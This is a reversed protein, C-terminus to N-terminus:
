ALKYIEVDENGYVRTFGPQDHFTNWPFLQPLPPIQLTVQHTIIVYEAGVEQAYRISQNEESYYQYFTSRGIILSTYTLRWDTLSLYTSNSPTNDKLWYIAAYVDRQAQATTARGTISDTAVTQGWSGYIMPSTLLIVLVAVRLKGGSPWSGLRRALVTLGYGAMLTLPVLAEISFRWASVALPAAVVLLLLWLLPLLQFTKKSRLCAWASVMAFFLLVVLGLDDEVESAMYSMVPLASLANALYTTKSVSGGGSIALQLLSAFFRPRAVIATVLPLVSVIAPWFYRLMESRGRVFQVLPLLLLAPVLSVTSYHALYATALAMLFVAWGVKEKPENILGKASVILFLTALIGFFNPYLGSNLVTVFWVSATLSYIGAAVIGAMGSDFIESAALYVLLPSLAVLIAIAERGTVLGEGGVLLLASALQFHVGFYLLSPGNPLSGAAMREAYSIHVSFDSSPYEPFIPFKGFYLGLVLALFAVLFLLVYDSLVPRRPFEFRGRKLVSAALLASGLLLLFYLTALDIGNSPSGFLMPGYVRTAFVVTDIVLGLGVSLAMRQGLTRFGRWLDFFEGFGLGPLFVVVTYIAFGPLFQEQM